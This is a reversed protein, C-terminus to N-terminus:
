AIGWHIKTALWVTSPVRWFDVAYDLSRHKGLVVYRFTGRGGAYRYRRVRYRHDGNESPVVIEDRFEQRYRHILGRRIYERVERTREM